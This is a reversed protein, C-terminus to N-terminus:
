KTKEEKEVVLIDESQTEEVSTGMTLWNFINSKEPVLKLVTTVLVPDKNVKVIVDKSMKSVVPANAAQKAAVEKAAKQAKRALLARDEPYDRLADVLDEKFLVYLTTFGHARVNATRRNMNGSGLLAIEGFCVGEGLTVFVISDGPGGVVQVAGSTIIFMEKGVDGKKCIYDGPLFLIPRLRIILSKLLGPDCGHFLKVGCITKYHVDLAVDTRMKVPLQELIALENFSKQTKWTHRCWDKVRDVTDKPVNMRLMYQSLLDFHFMYEDQASTANAIIEKVNGILVAFIFVGMIWLIGMFIMESPNDRGPKPNKGISVATKLGVYFCRAYPSGIGNYVFNSSGIGNYDSFAYYSCGTLHILYLM